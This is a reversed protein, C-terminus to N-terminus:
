GRYTEVYRQYKCGLIDAFFAGCLLSETVTNRKAHFLNGHIVLIGLSISKNKADRENEGDM